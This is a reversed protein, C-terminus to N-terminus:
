FIILKQPTQSLEAGTPMFNEHSCRLGHDHQHFFNHLLCWKLELWCDTGAANEWWKLFLSLFHFCLQTVVCSCEFLFFFSINFLSLNGCHNKMYGNIIGQYSVHSETAGLVRRYQDFPAEFGGSSSLSKFKLLYSHHSRQIPRLLDSVIVVFCFWSWRIFVTNVCLCVVCKLMRTVSSATQLILYLVQTFKTFELVRDSIWM